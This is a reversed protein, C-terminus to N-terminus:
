KRQLSDPDMCNCSYSLNQQGPEKKFLIYKRWKYSKGIVWGSVIELHTERVKIALRLDLNM